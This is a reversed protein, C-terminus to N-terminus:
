PGERKTGKIASSMFSFFDWPLQPSLLLCPEPHPEEKRGCILKVSYLLASMHVRLPPSLHFFHGLSKDGTNNFVRPIIRPEIRPIFRSEFDCFAQTLM